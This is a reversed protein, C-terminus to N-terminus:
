ITMVPPLRSQAKSSIGFRRSAESIIVAFFEQQEEPLSEVYRSMIPRAQRPFCPTASVLVMAKIREPQRTALHLLVDGGAGVGVEKCAGIGLHDLLALIDARRRSAPVAEAFHQVPWTRASRALHDPLKPGHQPQSSGTRAPVRSGHLLLLPEGTGHTEFYIRIGNLAETQGASPASAM